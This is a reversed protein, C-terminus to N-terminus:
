VESAPQVSLSTIREAVDRLDSDSIVRGVLREVEADRDASLETSNWTDLLDAVGRLWTSLAAIRDWAAQGRCWTMFWSVCLVIVRRIRDPTIFIRLLIRKMCLELSDENVDLTYLVHPYADVRLFFLRRVQFSDRFLHAPM